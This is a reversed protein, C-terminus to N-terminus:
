ERLFADDLIRHSRPLVMGIEITRSIRAISWGVMRGTATISIELSSVMPYTNLIDTHQLSGHTQGM